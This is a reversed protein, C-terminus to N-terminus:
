FTTCHLSFTQVVVTFSMKNDDSGPTFNHRKELRRQPIILREVKFIYHFFFLFLVSVLLTFFNINYFSCNRSIYIKTIANQFVFTSKGRM